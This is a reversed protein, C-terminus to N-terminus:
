GRTIIRSHNSSWSEGLALAVFHLQQQLKLVCNTADFIKVLQASKRAFKKECDYPNRKVLGSVLKIHPRLHLLTTPLLAFYIPKSPQPAVPCEIGSSRRRRGLRPKPLASEVGRPGFSCASHLKPSVTRRFHVFLPTELHGGHEEVFQLLVACLKIDRANGPLGRSNIGHFHPRLQFVLQGLLRRGVLRLALKQQTGAIETLCDLQIPLAPQQNGRHQPFRRLHLAFHIHEPGQIIEFHHVMGGDHIVQLILWKSVLIPCRQAYLDPWFVSSSATSTCFLPKAGCYFHAWLAQSASTALPATGCVGTKSSSTSSHSSTFG